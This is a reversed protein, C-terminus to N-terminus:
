SHPQEILDAVRNDYPTDQYCVRSSIEMVLITSYLLALCLLLMKVRKSLGTSNYTKWGTWVMLIPIIGNLITDGFGGSLDLAHLFAGEYRIAFLCSPIIVLAGLLYVGKGEKKIGIGDSLFDFLGMAIGFFSTVLALFAFLTALVSILPSQTAHILAHTAPEGRAYAALLGNEGDLPVTGMVVCQWIAYICFSISTGTIIAVRVSRKDRELYPILSPVITQFSFSTLLLPITSPINAWNRHALLPSNIYPAGIAIISFYAAGMILVLIGNIKGLAYHSFLICPAFILTFLLCGTEHSPNISNHSFFSITSALLKGSGGTYAILSAYSIFLFLVWSTVRGIGGLFERSMSVVHADKKKMWFGVEVFCLATMTMMFWTIVMSCLSPVFGAQGCAVPLALMGGGICTGSVLLAASFTYSSLPKKEFITNM